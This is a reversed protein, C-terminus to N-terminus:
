EVQFYVLMIKEKSIESYFNSPSLEIVSALDAGVRLTIIVSIFLTIVRFVVMEQHKTNQYEASSGILLLALPDRM